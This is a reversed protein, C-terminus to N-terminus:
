HFRHNRALHEELIIQHAQHRYEKFHGLYKSQMEQHLDQSELSQILTQMLKDQVAETQKNM